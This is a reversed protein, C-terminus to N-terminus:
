VIKSIKNLEEAMAVMGRVKKINANPDRENSQIESVSAALEQIAAASIGYLGSETNGSMDRLTCSTKKPAIIGLTAAVEDGDEEENNLPYAAAFVPIGYKSSDLEALIPQKLKVVKYTVDTEDWIHGVTLGPMDFRSSPRRHAIRELESMYIFSGEPFMETLIPAFDGFAAAIPHRGPFAISFSSNSNDTDNIIPVSVISLRKGYIGAPINPTHVTSRSVTVKQGVKFVNLKFTDPKLSWTITDEEIICFAVGGPIMLSLVDALIKCSEIASLSIM